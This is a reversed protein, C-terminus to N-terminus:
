VDKRRDLPMQGDALAVPKYYHGDLGNMAPIGPSTPQSGNVNLRQQSSVVDGGNSLCDERKEVETYMSVAARKMIKGAAYACGGYAFRILSDGTLSGIIFVNKALELDGNARERMSRGSIMSCDEDAPFIEHRLHADLCTLSGRRGVVYALGGVKREFPPGAAPRITVVAGDGDMQTSLIQANPLGEYCSRWDRSRDFPSSSPPARTARRRPDKSPKSSPAAMKMKKYVGAYEPYAQQHCAKLPSPCTLPAWKFVHLIKRSPPSSLIVDAASFGSGILLLPEASNEDATPSLSLLPQLLPPPPISESFIGSALVLHNCTIDHSAIHFGRDKRTIGSLHRGNYIADAIGVREPYLALYDAVEGRSPRFYVPLARGHRSQYHQHFSYGPLSLMGAYSLTGIDWSANVTNDVWQGGATLTQGVVVHPVARSPDHQWTICTKDQADDTESWPRILTDLLVNIPLAQTSYSFRSANFHETLSDVDLTLLDHQGRLKQDLIADPHPSDSDYLPINGHLMYSLILASPGNGAVILM